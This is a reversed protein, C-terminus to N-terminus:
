LLLHGFLIALARGSHRFPVTPGFWVARDMSAAVSSGDVMALDAALLPIWPSHAIQVVPSEAPVADMQDCCGSHCDKPPRPKTHSVPGRCHPCKAVAVKSTQAKACASLCLLHPIGTLVLALTLLLTSFIRM